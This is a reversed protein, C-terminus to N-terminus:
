TALRRSISGGYNEDLNEKSDYEFMPKLDDIKQKLVSSVLELFKKEFEKKESSQQYAEMQEETKLILLYGCKSSIGIYVYIDNYRSFEPWSLMKTKIYAAKTGRETAKRKAIEIRKKIENGV